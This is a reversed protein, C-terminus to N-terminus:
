LNQNLFNVKNGSTRRRILQERETKLCASKNTYLHLKQIQFIYSEPTDNWKSTSDFSWMAVNCQYIISYLYNPSIILVYLYMCRISMNNLYCM